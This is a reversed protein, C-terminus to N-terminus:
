GRFERWTWWAGYKGMAMRAFYHLVRMAGGIGASPRREHLRGLRRSIRGRLRMLPALFGTNAPNFFRTM